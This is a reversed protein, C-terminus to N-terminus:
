ESEVTVTMDLNSQLYRTGNATDANIARSFLSTVVTPDVEFTSLAPTAMNFEYSVRRLDLSGTAPIGPSYSADCSLGVNWPGGSGFVPRMTYSSTAWTGLTTWTVPSASAHELSYDLITDGAATLRQRVWVWTGADIGAPIAVLHTTIHGTTWDSVWNVSFSGGQVRTWFMLTTNRELSFLHVTAAPDFRCLLRCDMEIVNTGAGGPTGAGDSDHFMYDFSPSIGTQHLRIFQGVYPPIVVTIPHDYVVVEGFAAQGPASLAWVGARPGPPIAWPLPM